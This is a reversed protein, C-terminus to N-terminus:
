FYISIRAGFMTIGSRVSTKQGDAMIADLPPAFSYGAYCSIGVSPDFMFEIGGLFPFRWGSGRSTVKDLYTFTGYQSIPSIRNNPGYKRVIDFYYWGIGAGAFTRLGTAGQLRYTYLVSVSSEYFNNLHGNSNKTELLLGFNDHLRFQLSLSILAPIDVDENPHEIAYGQTRYKDEIATFAKNIGSLDLSYWTIGAGFGMKTEQEGANGSDAFPLMDSWKPIVGVKPASSGIQRKRSSSDAQQVNMADYDMFNLSPTNDGMRYQGAKLEEFHDVKEAIMLVLKETYEVTTDIMKGNNNQLTISAFYANDPTRFFTASFFNDFQSFMDYQRRERKDITTGVKSSLIVIQRKHQAVSQFAAIGVGWFIFVFIFIKNCM